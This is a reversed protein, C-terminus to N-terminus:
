WIGERCVTTGTINVESLHPPLDARGNVLKDRLERGQGGTGTGVLGSVHPRTLSWLVVLM